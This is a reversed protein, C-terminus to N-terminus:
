RVFALDVQQGSSCSNSKPKVEKLAFNARIFLDLYNGSPLLLCQLSNTAEKIHVYSLLKLFGHATQLHSFLFM